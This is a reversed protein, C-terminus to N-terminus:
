GIWSPIANNERQLIVIMTSPYVGVYQKWDTQPRDEWKVVGVEKKKTM